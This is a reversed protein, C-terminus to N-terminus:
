ILLLETLDVLLKVHNVNAHVMNTYCIIDQKCLSMSSFTSCM